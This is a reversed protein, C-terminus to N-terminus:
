HAVSERRLYASSIGLRHRHLVGLDIASFLDPNPLLIHLLSTAPRTRMAAAFPDDGELSALACTHVVLLLIAALHLDLLSSEQRRGRCYYRPLSRSCKPTPHVISLATRKYALSHQALKYM